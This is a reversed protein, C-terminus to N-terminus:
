FVKRARAEEREAPTAATYILNEAARWWPGEVLKWDNAMDYFSLRTKGTFFVGQSSRAVLGSVWDSNLEKVPTDKGVPTELLPPLPSARNYWCVKHHHTYGKSKDSAWNEGCSLPKTACYFRKKPAKKPAKEPENQNEEEEEKEKVPVALFQKLRTTPKTNGAFRSRSLVTSDFAKQVGARKETNMKTRVEDLLLSVRVKMPKSLCTYEKEREAEKKFFNRIDHKRMAAAVFGKFVGNGATQDAPQVLGTTCKPIRFRQIGVSKLFFRPPSGGHGPAYDDIFIKIERGLSLFYRLIRHYTEQRSWKSQAEFWFVGKINHWRQLTPDKSGTKYVVVFDMSGDAFWLVPMSLCLKPNGRKPKTVHKAGTWHLTMLTLALIRMSTEDLNVIQARRLKEDGNVANAVEDLLMDVEDAAQEVKEPSLTTSTAKRRSIRNEKCWRRVRIYWVEATVQKFLDPHQEQIQDVLDAYTVYLRAGLRKEDALEEGEPLTEALKQAEAPPLGRMTEMFDMLTKHVPLMVKKTKGSDPNKSKLSPGEKKGPEEPDLGELRSPFWKRLQKVWNDLQQPTVRKPLISKKAANLEATSSGEKLERKKVEWLKAYKLRDGVTYVTRKSRPKRTKKAKPTKKQARRKAKAQADFDKASLKRRKMSSKSAKRRVLKVQRMGPGVLAHKPGARIRKPKPPAGPAAAKAEAGCAKATLLKM